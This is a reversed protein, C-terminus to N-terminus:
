AGPLDEAAQQQGHLPVSPSPRIKASLAEAHQQCDPLTAQKQFPLAALFPVQTLSVVNGVQCATPLTAHDEGGLM